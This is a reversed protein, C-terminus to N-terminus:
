VRVRASLRSLRPRVCCRRKLCSVSVKRRILLRIALENLRQQPAAAISELLIEWRKLLTRITEAEFLDTSYEATVALGQESEVVDVSLDFQSAVGEVAVPSLTLGPLPLEEKPTNELQFMVQFLPNRSLSREPQLDEVLVEFPLDQHAYADLTVKRVRALLEPFHPDGSLDTRLVLTNVFFGILNETEISNRNAIPAGIVIEDQGTYRCLLAKFAALL